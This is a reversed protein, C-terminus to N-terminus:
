CQRNALSRYFMVLAVGLYAFLLVLMAVFSSKIIQTIFFFKDVSSLDDSVAQSFGVILAYIAIILGIAITMLFYMLIGKGIRNRRATWGGWLVTLAGAWNTLVSVAMAFTITGSNIIEQGDLGSDALENSVKSYLEDQVGSIYAAINPLLNCALPIVIFINIIFFVFKESTLAPLSTFTERDRRNLFVTCGFISCYGLASNLWGWSLDKEPFLLMFVATFLSVAFFAILMRRLGPNYFKGIMRVRKWSFGDFASLIAIDSKM